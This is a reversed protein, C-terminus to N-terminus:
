IGPAAEVRGSAIADRLAEYDRDNQDAYASAFGALARDLVDGKGVYGSIAVPDGTRAHAHALTWGCVRAYGILRKATMTEISASVKWDWLQRVYYDRSVGDPGTVTAWGLFIDSAAQTVSQGAVVREGHSSFVTPATFPELVSPGAQKVQLFLVDDDHSGVLLVVWSRSGVSGVGVVKRALDVYEYREILRRYKHPLTSAYAALIERMRVGVEDGTLEPLLDQGRVM